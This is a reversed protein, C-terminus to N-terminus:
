GDGFGDCDETGVFFGCFDMLSQWYHAAAEVAMVRKEDVRSRFGRVGGEAIGSTRIKRM